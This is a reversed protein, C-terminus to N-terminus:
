RFHATFVMSIANEPNESTSSAQTSHTYLIPKPLGSLSPGPMRPANTPIGPETIPWRPSCPWACMGRSSPAIGFNRKGCDVSTYKWNTKAAM